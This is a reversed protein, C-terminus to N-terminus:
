VLFYMSFYAVSHTSLNDCSVGYVVSKVFLSVLKVLHKVEPTGNIMLLLLLAVIGAVLAGVLKAKKLCTKCYSAAHRTQDRIAPIILWTFYIGWHCPSKMPQRRFPDPPRLPQQRQKRLHSRRDVSYNVELQVDVVRLLLHTIKGTTVTEMQDRMISLNLALLRHIRTELKSM